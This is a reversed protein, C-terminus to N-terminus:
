LITHTPYGVTYVMLPTIGSVYVGRILVLVSELLWTKSPVGPSIHCQFADTCLAKHHTEKTIMYLHTGQNM